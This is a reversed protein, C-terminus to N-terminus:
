VEVKECQGNRAGSDPLKTGHVQTAQGEEIKFIVGFGFKIEATTRISKGPEITRTLGINQIGDMVETKAFTIEVTRIGLGNPMTLRKKGNAAGEFQLIRNLFDDHRHLGTLLFAHFAILLFVLAQAIM